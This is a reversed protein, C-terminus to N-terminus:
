SISKGPPSNVTRCDVNRASNIKEDVKDHTFRHENLSGTPGGQASAAAAAAVALCFAASFRLFLRM